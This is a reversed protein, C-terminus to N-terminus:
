PRPTTFLRTRLSVACGSHSGACPAQAPSARAPSTRTTPRSAELTSVAPEIGTVRENALVTTSLTAGKAEAGGQWRIAVPSARERSLPGDEEEM